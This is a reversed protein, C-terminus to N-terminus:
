PGFHVTVNGVFPGKSLFQYELTDDPTSMVGATNTTLDKFETMSTSKYQLVVAGKTITGDIIWESNQGGPNVPGVIAGDTTITGDLAM